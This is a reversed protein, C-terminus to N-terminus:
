KLFSSILFFSKNIAAKQIYSRGKNKFFNKKILIKNEKKIGIFVLGVPKKKTGGGPGAIGTISISINTRGIRAQNKLMILCVEKSVAGYKKIINKPIKLINAKSKNSYTVLGFEFIKSSDKISTFESALKGGTCSEAV